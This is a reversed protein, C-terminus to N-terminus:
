KVIHRYRIPFEIDGICENHYGCSGGEFVFIEMCRRFKRRLNEVKTSRSRNSRINSTESEVEELRDEESSSYLDSLYRNPPVWM